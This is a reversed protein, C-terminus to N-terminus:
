YRRTTSKNSCSTVEGYLFYSEHGWSAAVKEERPGPLVYIMRQSRKTQAQSLAM